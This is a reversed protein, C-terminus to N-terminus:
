YPEYLRKWINGVNRVASDYIALQEVVANTIPDIPTAPQLHLDADTEGYETVMAM